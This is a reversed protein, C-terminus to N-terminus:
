TVIVDSAAPIVLAPDVSVSFNIVANRPRFTSLGNPGNQNARIQGSYANSYRDTSCFAYTFYDETGTGHHSPFAEHDVYIKEDGEGWWYGVPDPNAVHLVTGVYFGHCLVLLARPENGIREGIPKSFSHIKFKEGQAYTHIM